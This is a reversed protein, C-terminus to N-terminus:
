VYHLIMGIEILLLLIALSVLFAIKQNVSFSRQSRSELFIGICLGVACGIPISMPIATAGHFGGLETLAIDLAVLISIGMAIGASLGRGSVMTESANGPMEDRHLTINKALIHVKRHLTTQSLGIQLFQYPAPTPLRTEAMEIIDNITGLINGPNIEFNEPLLVCLNITSLIMVERVIDM